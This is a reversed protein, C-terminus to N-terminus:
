DRTSGGDGGGEALQASELTKNNGWRSTPKTDKYRKYSKMNRAGLDMSYM